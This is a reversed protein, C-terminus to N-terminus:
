QLVNEYLFNELIAPFAKQSDKEQFPYTFHPSSLTYCSNIPAKTSLKTISSLYLSLSISITTIGKPIHTSHAAYQQSQAKNLLYLYQSLNM